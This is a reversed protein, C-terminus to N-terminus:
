SAWVRVRCMACSADFKGWDSRLQAADNQVAEACTVGCRAFAKRLLPVRSEVYEGSILKGQNQMCEALTLSKGGPAACLDAVKQGPQAGM